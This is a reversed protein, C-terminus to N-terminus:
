SVTPETPFNSGLGLILAQPRAAMYLVNSQVHLKVGKDWEM